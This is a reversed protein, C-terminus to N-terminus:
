KGSYDIFCALTDQKQAKATQFFLLTFITITLFKFM